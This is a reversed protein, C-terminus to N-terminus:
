VNYPLKFVTEQYFNRVIITYDVKTMEICIVKSHRDNFNILM